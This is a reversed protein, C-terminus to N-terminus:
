TLPWVRSNREARIEKAFKKVFDGNFARLRAFAADYVKKAARYEPSFKVDDATLGMPGTGTPFAKLPVGARTLDAELQDRAVKAVQYNMGADGDPTEVISGIGTM